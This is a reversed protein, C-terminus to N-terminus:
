SLLQLLQEHRIRLLYGAAIRRVWVAFHVYSHSTRPLPNFHSCWPINLQSGRYISETVRVDLLLDAM